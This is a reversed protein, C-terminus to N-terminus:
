VQVFYCKKLPKQDKLWKMIPLAMKLLGVRWM